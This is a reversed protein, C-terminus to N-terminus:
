CFTHIESNFIKNIHLKCFYDCNTKLPKNKSMLEYEYLRRTCRINKHNRYTCKYQYTSNEEEIKNSKWAKSAEEFFNSDFVEEKHIIENNNDEIENFKRKVM